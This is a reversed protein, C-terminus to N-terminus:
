RKGQEALERGLLFAQQLIEPYKSIKGAGDVSRVRLDSYYKIGFSDFFYGITQVAGDFVKEGKSGAVAIFVGRRKETIDAAPKKLLYKRAYNAQGRDIVAKLQSPIGYYFIPSSIIINKISRLWSYIKQMEDKIICEGTADCSHCERCGSIRLDRVTIKEVAAGASEAGKIAEELLITSNANKRLGGAIALIDTM